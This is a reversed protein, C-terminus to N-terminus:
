IEGERKKKMSKAVLGLSGLAMAALGAAIEAVSQAEGTEPLTQATAPITPEASVPTADYTVPAPTAAVPASTPTAVVPAPTAVVPTKKYHYITNGDEDTTTNVFTYGPIDKKPQTGEEQPLLPNGDEDVFDTTVKVVPKYHHVTNGDSDTTTNVFTYGTIDKEPQTGEEQPLLPNGDEDVFDTTVKVIAKYHHVVNGNEDTTTNVFEYNPIDKKDQVGDQQEALPNGDEDVWNTTVVDAKYHHVVNGDEDTTTNVYTYKPIDKVPQAGEQQTALPTNNEDVWDTTIVAVVPKYHHITNGDSDTTTNVFTYGTIDKVPQTGDQQTILDKGNEDVWNTHVTVVPKYHHITNGDSDTTTNVFTYGTIDKVPQTGDQQVILDKGNEDVWNTHVTVVPKYHHITNGDSDTTTNVFTYGTIDKKPQTGDQQVLLPTGNEDVWNTHVAVAAKPTVKYHHITNGDSDTTTNVFTYGTIDKKPQTGDQQVLLDKGNEDVWNTHVTVVPKYHHITNGDSDTTTNVFTYDPIDKKPQTGDQQVVLPTGNEDVWNTHVGVTPTVKYHHVTNGDSDTTTNVFTYGPIDKKPQTGDQQVILDKGNEDVWNTHVTVTPTVKYHHVTNGDSDTTTNVFTYGPIDKKPQTGDQQVILDKGNEDVWNTYVTVTPTVKYHHVTNGDSDTTTNVFTYGPIDKKPQTGDQQVILSNGNEDVWNTHVTVTPTVKYHHVTNGDSDTTTSVWTYGTIDKKPQSGNVQASISKGNEDVFNTVVTPTPTVPVTVDVDTSTATDSSTDKAPTTPPTVDADGTTNSNTANSTAGTALPVSASYEASQVLSAFEPVVAAESKAEDAGVFISGNIVKYLGTVYTNLANTFASDANTQNGNADYLAIGMKTMLADIDSASTTKSTDVTKLGTYGSIASDVYTQLATKFTADLKAVTASDVKAATAEVDALSSSNALNTIASKGDTGDITGLVINVASNGSADTSIGIVTANIDLPTDASYSTITKGGNATIKPAGTPLNSNIFNVATIIQAGTANDATVGALGTASWKAYLTKAAPVTSSKLANLSTFISTLNQETPAVMYSGLKNDTSTFQFPATDLAKSLDGASLASKIATANTYLAKYEDLQGAVYADLSTQSVSDASASQVNVLAGAAVGFAGAAGFAVGISKQKKSFKM